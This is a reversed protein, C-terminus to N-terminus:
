CRSNSSRGYIDDFRIIDDEGLYGGAQVEIIVLPKTGPNELRHKHRPPIFTSENINLIYTNENNTVQAIGDVVVWHESRHEHLQLSLKQGPLVMIKKIKFGIGEELITYEGWPRPVTKHEQVVSQNITKLKNVISKLNDTQATDAILLADPTDIVVLNEVGLTSVLRQNAHVFCDKTAEAVVHGVFRNGNEDASILQGWAKWTGIDNWKFYCAVVAIQPFHEMIAYDFSIERLPNFPVPLMKTVSAQEHCQASSNRLSAAVGNLIDEAFLKFAAYSTRVSLCFMGSNWLYDGSSVYTAAIQVAPKEIFELVEYVQSDTNSLQQGKKIYGYGTEPYYPLMGFTAIYGSAAPSSAAELAKQFGQRDEILHDSPMILLVADEGFNNKAYVTAAAVSAATNKAVPELLYHLRLTNIPSQQIEAQTKAYLEITTVILIDSLQPLGLLRECTKQLLSQGDPLKLFPKPHKERSLPWLRTGAGGCFIVPIIKM